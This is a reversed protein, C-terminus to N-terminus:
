LSDFFGIPNDETKFLSLRDLLLNSWECSTESVLSCAHCASLNLKNEVVNEAESCLPDSSCIKAREIAQKLLKHFQDKRGQQIIGGLSGDSDPSGTYLLIGCMNPGAYIKERISSSSYGASLSLERILVHSLSHLLVFRISFREDKEWGKEVRWNQYRNLLPKYRQKVDQRNEWDSLKDENLQIFIGEGLIEVAPLWDVKESSLYSYPVESDDYPDPYDIRTFGRLARIERLRHALVIRSVYESISSDVAEKQIHFHKTKKVDDQFAKWEEYRIDEPHIEMNYQDKIVRYVKTLESDDEIEPFLVDLVLELGEIGRKEINKKITTWKSSVLEQIEDTWPPISLASITSSFYVNSAGRQLGRPIKNCDRDHGRKWPSNGNCSHIVSQLASKKLAGALTNKKNCSKCSILIDDLSSSIGKTKLYLDPSNCVHDKDGHAWENWPFDDIHGKECAMILRAPYTPAGKQHCDCTFGRYDRKFDNRLAGCRSCVRYRPFSIAPIGGRGKISKPQLFASVNLRTSLRPEHLRKYYREQEKWDQLGMIMVSDNRFDVLSGPGYTTIVQSPRVGGPKKFSMM